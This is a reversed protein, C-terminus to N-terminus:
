VIIRAYLPIFVYGHLHQDHRLMDDAGALVIVGAVNISNFWDALEQAFTQM